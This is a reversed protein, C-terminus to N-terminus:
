LKIWSHPNNRWEPLVCLPTGDVKVPLMTCATFDIAIGVVEAPNIGSDKLVKPVTQKIVEIYDMPDQLAWDPPLSKDSGPLHEDIVGNGYAHVASAIERGDRADVLLARGSETGFDIGITYM